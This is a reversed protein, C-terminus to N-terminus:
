KVPDLNTLPRRFAQNSYWNCELPVLLDMFRNMNIDAGKYSLLKDATNTMQYLYTVVWIGCFKEASRLKSLTTSESKPVKAM